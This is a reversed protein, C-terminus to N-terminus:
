KKDTSCLIIRPPWFWAYFPQTHRHDTNFAQMLDPHEKSYKDAIRLRACTATLHVVLMLPCKLLTGIFLTAVVWCKWKINHYPTDHHPFQSFPAGIGFLVLYAISAIIFHPGPICGLFKVANTIWRYSRNKILQAEPCNGVRIINRERLQAIAVTATYETEFGFPSGL